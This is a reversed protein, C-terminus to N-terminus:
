PRSLGLAPQNPNSLVRKEWESMPVDISANAADERAKKAASQEALYKERGPRDLLGPAQIGNPTLPPAAKEQKIKAVEARLEDGYESGFRLAANQIGAELEKVNPKAGLLTQAAQDPKPVRAMEFEDVGKAGAKRLARALDFQANQVAMSNASSPDQAAAKTVALLADKKSNLMIKQAEPLKEEFSGAQAKMKSGLEKYYDAHANNMAAITPATTRHSEAAARLSDAEADWFKASKKADFTKSDIEARTTAAAANAEAAGATRAHIGLTAEELQQKKVAARTNHDVLMQGLQILEDKSRVVHTESKGTKADFATIEPLGGPNAPNTNLFAGFDTKDATHINALAKAADPLSMNPVMRAWTNVRDQVERTGLTFARDGFQAAVEPKGAKLALDAIDRAQESAAYPISKVPEARSLGKAGALADATAQAGEAGFDATQADLAKAQDVGAGQKQFSNDYTASGVKKLGKLSKSYEEDGKLQDLQYQRLQKMQAAEDMKRKDDLGETVGKGIGGLLAWDAM